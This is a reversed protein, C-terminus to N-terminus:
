FVVTWATVRAVLLTPSKGPSWDALSHFGWRLVRGDFDIGSLSRRLIGAILKALAMSVFLALLLTVIGPLLSAVESLVRTTSHSLAKQIQEWMSGGEHRSKPISATRGGGAPFWTHSVRKM